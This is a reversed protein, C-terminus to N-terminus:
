YGFADTWEDMVDSAWRDLKDTIDIKGHKDIRVNQSLDNFTDEFDGYNLSVKLVDTEYNYECILTVDHIGDSLSYAAATPITSKLLHADDLEFIRLLAESLNEVLNSINVKEVLYGANKLIEKAEDLRM